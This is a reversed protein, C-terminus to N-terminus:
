STAATTTMQSADATLNSGANANNDTSPILEPLVVNQPPEDSKENEKKQVNEAFEKEDHILAPIPTHYVCSSNEFLDVVPTECPGDTEVTTVACARFLCQTSDDLIHKTCLKSMPIVTEGCKTNTTLNFTCGTSTSPSDASQTSNLGTKAEGVRM